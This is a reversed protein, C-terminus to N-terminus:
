TLDHASVYVPTNDLAEELAADAEWTRMMINAHVPPNFKGLVGRQVHKEVAQIAKGEADDWFLNVYLGLSACCSGFLDDLLAGQGDAWWLGEMAAYSLQGKPFIRKLGPLHPFLRKILWGAPGPIEIIEWDGRFVLGGVLIQDNADTIVYYTGHSYLEEPFFFHYDKYFVQLKRLMEPAEEPRLPRFRPHRPTQFRSSLFTALQRRARLGFSQCLQQSPLNDGEVYAFLVRPLPKSNNPQQALEAALLSRIHNKRNPHAKAHTAQPGSPISLYRVYATSVARGAVESNRELLAANGLLRNGKELLLWRTNPISALKAAADLQRYRLKGPLGYVTDRLINVVEPHPQNCSHVLLEKEM